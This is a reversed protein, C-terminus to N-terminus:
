YTSAARSSVSNWKEFVRPFGLIFYKRNCIRRCQYFVEVFAGEFNYKSNSFQSLFQAQHTGEAIQPCINKQKPFSLYLNLDSAHNICIPSLYTTELNLPVRIKFQIRKAFGWRFWFIRFVAISKKKTWFNERSFESFQFLGVNILQFIKCISFVPKLLKWSQLWRTRLVSKWNRHMWFDITQFDKLSGLIRLRFNLLPSVQIWSNENPVTPNPPTLKGELLAMVFILRNM